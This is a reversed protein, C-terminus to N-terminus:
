WFYKSKDPSPRKRRFAISRWWNKNEIMKAALGFGLAAVWPWVLLDTQLATRYAIAGHDDWAVIHSTAPDPVKTSQFSM